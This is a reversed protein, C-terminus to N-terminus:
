NLTREVVYPLCLKCYLWGVVFLFITMLTILCFILPHDIEGGYTLWRIAEFIHTLPNYVFLRHLLTGDRPMFFVPTIGFLFWPLVQMISDLDNSLANWPALLLGLSSAFLILLLFGFPMLIITLQPTIDFFILVAILVPLRMFLNFINEGFGALIFAELPIKQRVSLHLYYTLFIRQSNFSELFIQMMVIGFIGYVQPPVNQSTLGAIGTRQGLTLLIAILASPIFAWFLGLSSYRYRKVVNQILLQKTFPLGQIVDKRATKLFVKLPFLQSGSSYVISPCINTKDNESSNM